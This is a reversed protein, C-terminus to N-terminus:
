SDIVEKIKEAKKKIDLAQKAGPIQEVVKEKFKTEIM